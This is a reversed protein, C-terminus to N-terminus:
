QPMRSGVLAVDVRRDPQLCSIVKASKAGPCDGARTVPENEGKGSTEVRQAPIGIGVLYAKVSEAREESLRQNYESPGIRDTHGVTKIAEPDIGKIRAAFDDLTARGAPRLSSKDFDFLMDADFSLKELVVPPPAAAAVVAPQAVPAPEVPTAIAVPVLKADCGETFTPSAPAFGTHWCLGYASLPVSGGADRLYTSDAPRAQPGAAEQAITSTSLIILALAVAAALGTSRKMLMSTM